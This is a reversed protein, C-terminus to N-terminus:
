RDHPVATDEDASPHPELLRELRQREAELAIITKDIRDIHKRHRDHPDEMTDMEPEQSVFFARKGKPYRAQSFL